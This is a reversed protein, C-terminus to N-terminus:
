FFIEAPYLFGDDNVDWLAFGADWEAESLLLNGDVDLTAFGDNLLYEDPSIWGDDNVDWVAFTANWETVTIVGDDNVDIEAFVGDAEVVTETSDDCAIGAMGLAAIAAAFVIGKFKSMQMGEMESGPTFIPEPANLLPGTIAQNPITFARGPGTSPSRTVRWPMAGGKVASPVVVWPISAITPRRYVDGLPNRARNVKVGTIM